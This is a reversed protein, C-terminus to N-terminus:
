LDLSTGPALRSYATRSKLDLWRDVLSMGIDSLLADHISVARAPSVARVFDIAEALKLWPGSTPVLLLEVAADPVFVSDGPHYARGDVVFGVNVCGPLSDYIEAHLGGVADVRFGGAEFSDGPAVTVAPVGIAVLQEVVPLPARVVLASNAAALATLREIDIHDVHEHTVLIEEIGEYAEVEAWIGPDILLRRDGDDFRVCAHTYKTVRM